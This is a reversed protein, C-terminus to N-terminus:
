TIVLPKDYFNKIDKLILIYKIKWLLVYLCKFLQLLICVNSTSPKETWLGSKPTCQLSEQIGHELVKGGLSVGVGRPLVRWYLGHSLAGVEDINPM